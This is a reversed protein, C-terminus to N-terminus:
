KGKLKKFMKDMADRNAYTGTPNNPNAIFIIKTKENVQGAMEVLDFVFEKTQPVEILKGDNVQTVQKFMGFAHEATIVEEGPAVLTRVLLDIIENSGNGAIIQDRPIKLVSSLKEILYYFHSEPYRNIKGLENIIAEVAKPSPGFPNENSALQVTENTGWERAMEEVPKGPIYPFIKEIHQRVMVDYM